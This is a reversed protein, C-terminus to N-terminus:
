KFTQIIKVKEYQECKEKLKKKGFIDIIRYNILM